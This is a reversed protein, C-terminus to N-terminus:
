IGLGYKKIYSFTKDLSGGDCGHNLSCDIIQQASLFVLNNTKIAIASEVSAASSFAYCAGCKGQERIPTVVGLEVWNWYPEKPVIKTKNKKPRLFLSISKRLLQNNLESHNSKKM